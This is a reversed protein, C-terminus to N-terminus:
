TKGITDISHLNRITDVFAYMCFIPISLQFLEWWNKQIGTHRWKEETTITVNDPPYSSQNVLIYHSYVVVEDDGHGIYIYIYIYILYIYIYIYIYPRIYIVINTHTHTYPTFIYIYIYIYIYIHLLSVVIAHIHIFIYIHMRLLSVVIASQLSRKM